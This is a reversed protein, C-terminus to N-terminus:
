IYSSPAVYSYPIGILSALHYVEDCGKMATKVSLQDRVDGLFFEVRERKEKSLNDLWGYSSNSNYFCFARVNIGSNILLDVLHSGIFGDAGTVLVKKM